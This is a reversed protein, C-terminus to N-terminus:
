LDACLQVIPYLTTFMALHTDYAVCTTISSLLAVGAHAATHIKIYQHVLYNGIKALLYSRGADGCTPCPSKWWAQWLHPPRCTKAITSNKEFSSELSPRLWAIQEQRIVHTNSDRGTCSSLHVAAELFMSHQLKLVQTKVKSAPHKCPPYEDSACARSARSVRFLWVTSTVNTLGGGTKTTPLCLMDFVGRLPQFSVVGSVTHRQDLLNHSQSRHPCASCPLPLLLDTDLQSQSVLSDAYQAGAWSYNVYSICM